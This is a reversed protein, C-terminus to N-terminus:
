LPFHSMSGENPQHTFSSPTGTFGSIVSESRASRASGPGGWDSISRASSSSHSASHKPRTRPPPAAPPPSPAPQISNIFHRLAVQLKRRKPVPLCDFDSEFTPGDCSELMTSLEWEKLAEWYGGLDRTGLWEKLPPLEVDEPVMPTSLIRKLDRLNTNVKDIRILKMDENVLIEHKFELSAEWAETAKKQM